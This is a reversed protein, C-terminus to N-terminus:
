DSRWDGYHFEYGKRDCIPCCERRKGHPCKKPVPVRDDPKPSKEFLQKIRLRLGRFLNM